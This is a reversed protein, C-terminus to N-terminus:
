LLEITAVIMTGKKLKLEQAKPKDIIISYSPNAKNGVENVKTIVTIKKNM